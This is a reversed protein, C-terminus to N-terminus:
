RLGPNKGIVESPEISCAKFAPYSGACLGFVIIITFSILITGINQHTPIELAESVAPTLFYGLLLGPIAPLITLKISQMLIMCAINRTTAGVAIHIGIERSKRYVAILQAGMIGIGAVILSFICFGNILSLLFINNKTIPSQLIYETSSANFVLIGAIIMVEIFNFVDMFKINKKRM